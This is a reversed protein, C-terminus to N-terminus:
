VLAAKEVSDLMVATISGCFECRITVTVAGDRPIILYSRGQHKAKFTGDERHIGLLRGCRCTSLEDNM